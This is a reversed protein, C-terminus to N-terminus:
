PCKLVALLSQGFPPPILNELHSQVPVIWRDFFAIQRQSQAERRFIHSNLWWGFFGIFNVYHLKGVQLGVVRALKRLSSRTYRRYHRLNRDIPGYLSPFAPVLLVIAGGPKISAAMHRLAAEDDEIHELVNLCVCSDPQYRVLDTFGSDAVNNSFVHLNPKDPYRSHLRLLCETDIDVALVAERDLLLGTFNGMGCGVELVRQGLERTVLRAQWAFYNRAAALRQQDELTYNLQEM